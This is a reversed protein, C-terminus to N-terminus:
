GNKNIQACVPRQWVFSRRKLESQPHRTHYTIKGKRCTTDDLGIIQDSLFHQGNRQVAIEIVKSFEVENDMFDQEFCGPKQEETSLDPSKRVM